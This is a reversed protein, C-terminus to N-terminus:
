GALFEQPHLANGPKVLVPVEPESTWVFRPEKGTSPSVKRVSFCTEGLYKRLQDTVTGLTEVM